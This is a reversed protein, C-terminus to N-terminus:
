GMMGTWDQSVLAQPALSGRSERLARYAKPAQFLGAMTVMKGQLAQVARHGLSVMQAPHEGLGLLVLIERTVKLDLLGWSELLALHEKLVPLALLAKLGLGDMLDTKGMSVLSVLERLGLLAKQEQLGRTEWLAPLGQIEMMETKVQFGRVQQALLVTLAPLARLVQLGQLGRWVQIVMKGMLVRDDLGLLAV